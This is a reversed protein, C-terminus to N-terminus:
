AQSWPNGRYGASPDIKAVVSQPGLMLDTGAWVCADVRNPSAGTGPVWTCMEDELGALVGVHSARGQEYLASIPEARAQKGRSAHVLRVPVRKDVTHITHSVMEGGNNAEAVICDAKLRHFMSVARRAWGDPSLHCTDDELVILHDEGGLKARGAGIIGTDDADEGSTSAPDVAVVVRLMEPAKTLRNADLLTRTWLAGPIDDLIEAELEQRGLTTGRYKALIADLWAAPLNAANDFTSGRTVVAAPSSLLSRILKTPRPTTTIVCRPDGGFRLGLNLQDWADAFRWAALEDAWATDHEPGRLQDPEDATYTTAVAGNPWTIRRKSPEYTPREDPASVALVGSPGEVM